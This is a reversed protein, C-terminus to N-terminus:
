SMFFIWPSIHPFLIHFWCLFFKLLEFHIVMVFSLNKRLNMECFHALYASFCILLTQPKSQALQILLFIASSKKLVFGFTFHFIFKRTLIWMPNNNYPNSMLAARIKPLYHLAKRERFRKLLFSENHYSFPHFSIVALNNTRQIYDYDGNRIRRPNIICCSKAINLAIILLVFFFTSSFFNWLLIEM